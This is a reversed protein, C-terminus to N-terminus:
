ESPLYGVVIADIAAISTAVDIADKMSRATGVEVAIKTAAATTIALMTAADPIQYSTKDDLTRATYPYTLFDTHTSLYSWNQQAQVSLSFIQGSATPYEFGEAIRRGTELDMLARIKERYPPLDEILTYHGEESGDGSTYQHYTEGAGYVKITKPGNAIRNTISPIKVQATALSPGVWQQLLNDFKGKATGLVVGTDNTYIFM